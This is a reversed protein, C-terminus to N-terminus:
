AVIKRPELAAVLPDGITVSGMGMEQQLFKVTREIEAEQVEQSWKLRAAMISVVQPLIQLAAQVDLFAIRTRRALVDFATLAFEYEIAYHVEAAIYPFKPHLRQHAFNFATLLRIANCGYSAVLNDAVDYDVGFCRVISDALHEAHGTAGYLKIGKTRCRCMAPLQFERVVANITAEAMARYTTWNGGSITILGLESILPRDPLCISSWLGKWASLVHSGNLEVNPSLKERFKDLLLEVESRTPALGLVGETCGVLTHGEWPMAFIEDVGLGHIAHTRALYGPLVIHTGAAPKAVAVARESDMRRMGDVYAGTANVVAISRIVLHSRTLLDKALCARVGNIDPKALKEVQVYNALRAGHRVATMALAMCLRADDMQLEYSVLAARIGDMRLLPNALHTEEASIFHSAEMKSGLGAMLDYLKLILWLRSGEERSRVPTLMPVTRLMHPANRQLISRERLSERVNGLMRRNLNALAVPLRRLGGHILKSSKSSTGSAFDSAEVLATKLGRSAADLACGCGVAGGGVVLVDYVTNDLSEMIRRRSALQEEGVAHARRQHAPHYPEKIRIYLPGFM